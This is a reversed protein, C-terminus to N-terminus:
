GGSAVYPSSTGKDSDYFAAWAYYQEDKAYIHPGHTGFGNLWIRGLGDPAPQNGSTKSTTNTSGNQSWGGSGNDSFTMNEFNDQSQDYVFRLVNWKNQTPLAASGMNTYEGCRGNFDAKVSDMVMYGSYWYHTMGYTRGDSNVVYPMQDNSSPDLNVYMCIDFTWDGSNYDPISGLSTRYMNGASTPADEYRGTGRGAGWGPPGGYGAADSNLTIASSNSDFDVSGIQDDHSASWDWFHTAGTPNDHPSAGGGSPVIINRKRELSTAFVTVGSTRGLIPSM